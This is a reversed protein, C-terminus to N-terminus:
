VSDIFLCHLVRMQYKCKTLGEKQSHRVFIVRLGFEMCNNRNNLEWETNCACIHGFIYKNIKKQKSIVM